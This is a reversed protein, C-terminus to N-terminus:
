NARWERAAGRREAAADLAPGAAMDQIAIMVPEPVNGAQRYEASARLDAGVEKHIRWGDEDRCAIGAVSQRAYGRCYNGARDRFSL